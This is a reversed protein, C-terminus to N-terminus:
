IIEQYSKNKAEHKTTEEDKHINVFYNIKILSYTRLLM